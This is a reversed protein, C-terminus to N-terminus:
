SGTNMPRILPTDAAVPGGRVPGTVSSGNDSLCRVPWGPWAAGGLWGHCLLSKVISSMTQRPGCGVIASRAAFAPTVFVAVRSSRAFVTFSAM